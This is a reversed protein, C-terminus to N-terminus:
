TRATYASRTYTEVFSRAKSESETEVAEAAARRDPISNAIKCRSIVSILIARAEEELFKSARQACTGIETLKARFKQVYRGMM